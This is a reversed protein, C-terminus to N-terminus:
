KHNYYKAMGNRSNVSADPNSSEECLEMLNQSADSAVPCECHEPGCVPGEADKPFVRVSEMAWVLVPDPGKWCRSALDEWHVKGALPKAEEWHWDAASYRQRDIM